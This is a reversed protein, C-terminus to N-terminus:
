LLFSIHLFNEHTKKNWKISSTAQVSYKWTWEIHIIHPLLRMRFFTSVHRKETNWPVPTRRFRIFGYRSFLILISVLNKRNSLKRNSLLTKSFKLMGPFIWIFVCAGDMSRLIGYSPFEISCSSSYSPLIPISIGPEQWLRIQMPFGLGKDHSANFVMPRFNWPFSYGYKSFFYRYRYQPERGHSPDVMKSCGGMSRSISQFSWAHTMRYLM